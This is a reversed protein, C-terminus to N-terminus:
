RITKLTAVSTELERVLSGFELDYMRYSVYIGLPSLVVASIIAVLLAREDALFEAYSPNKAFAYGLAFDSLAAFPMVIIVSRKLSRIIGRILDAEEVLGELTNITAPDFQEYRSYAQALDLSGFAFTLLLVSAAYSGLSNGIWISTALFALVSLALSALAFHYHRTLKAALQALQSRSAAM